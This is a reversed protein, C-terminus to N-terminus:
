SRSGPAEGSWADQLLERVGDRTIERPNWYPNRTAIEAARDLDSEALGLDKLAMPSGIEQAFRWLSLGPADGGLIKTIPTLLEPVAEANFHIAHPLVIAHTQAHPLDFSGGLAHCLKHHLAMGVRGLVHGCAWAGRLTEERAELDDPREIVKPLATAFARLGDIALRTTEASRDKAYLAEAAHAMANLGSTASLSVPLTVVLEPDYLVVEPLVRPDSLTTKIGNETQGLIPTAESGAYTTPVVFQALDTRLALAKGLGTTSGGGVAVLCDAQVSTAHSLADDTVEVPTHMAARSYVGAARAGLSAAIDLAVDSQQPTSLVLARSCEMAALEDALTARLGAGFRVKQGQIDITSAVM